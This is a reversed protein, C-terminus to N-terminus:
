RVVAKVAAETQPLAALEALTVPKVPPRLRYYGVEAPTTGNAQAILEVV